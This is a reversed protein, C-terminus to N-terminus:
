DLDPVRQIAAIYERMRAMRVVDITQRPRGIAGIDSRAASIAGTWLVIGNPDPLRLLVTSRLGVSM